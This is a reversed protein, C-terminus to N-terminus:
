VVCRPKVRRDLAAGANASTVRDAASKVSRAWLEAPRAIGSPRWGAAPRSSGSGGRRRRCRASVSRSRAAPSGNRLSMTVPGPPEWHEEVVRRAVRDLEELGGRTSRRHRVTVSFKPSRNRRQPCDRSHPRIPQMPKPPGGAWMASSRSRHTSLLTPQGGLLELVRDGRAVQQGARRRRLERDVAGSSHAAAGARDDTADREDNRAECQDEREGRQEKGARWREPHAAGAGSGARGDRRDRHVGPGPRTGALQRRVCLVLRM